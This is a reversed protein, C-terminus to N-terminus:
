KSSTSTSIDLSFASRYAYANGAMKKKAIDLLYPVSILCNKIRRIDVHEQKLQSRAALTAIFVVFLLGGSPLLFRYVLVTLWKVCSFSDMVQFGQEQKRKKKSLIIGM